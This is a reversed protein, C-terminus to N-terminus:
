ESVASSEEAPKDLRLADYDIEFAYEDIRETFIKDLEESGMNAYLTDVAYKLDEDSVKADGAYVMIHVGYDTVCITREGIKKPVFSAKQFEEMYTTGNPIVTYGNPYNASGAKDASYDNILDDINEGDDLKKEVEEQKSKLEEAKETRLKDAEDDKEESRLSRIQTQTDSDFALLVHKILRSGDPLWVQSYGGQEYKSIESNYYEEGEIQLDKLKKEADARDVSNYIANQVKEVIKATVEWERMDERDMGAKELIEDLKKSGAERKEEDTMSPASTESTEEESTEGDSGGSAQSEELEQEAREGLQKIFSEVTKEHEEDIEQQEEDTLESVGMEKALRAYIKQVILTNIITSRQQKCAAAISEKTDDDIGSNALIFKYEKRFEEYTINLDDIDEGGTAYAVVKDLKPETRTGFKMSCGCLAGALFLAAGARFIKSAKSNM